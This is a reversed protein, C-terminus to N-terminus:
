GNSSLARRCNEQIVRLWARLQAQDKEALGALAVDHTSEIVPWLQALLAEGASTIAVHCEADTGSVTIWNQAALRCLFETLPPGQRRTDSAVDALASTRDCALRMLFIVEDAGV